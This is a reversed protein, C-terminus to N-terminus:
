DLILLRTVGSRPEPDRLQLIGVTRDGLGLGLTRRNMSQVPRVSRNLRLVGEVLLLRSPRAAVQVIGPLEVSGM